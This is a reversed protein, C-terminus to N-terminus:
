TLPPAAPPRRQSQRQWRSSASGFEDLSIFCEAVGADELQADHVTLVHAVAEEDPSPQRHLSYRPSTEPDAAEGNIFFLVQENWHSVTCTITLDEGEVGASTAVSEVKPQPTRLRLVDGGSNRAPRPRECPWALLYDGVDTPSTFLPSLSRCVSKRAPSMSPIEGPEFLEPLGPDSSPEVDPETPSRNRPMTQRSPLGRAM